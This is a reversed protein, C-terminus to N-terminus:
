LLPYYQLDPDDPDFCYV